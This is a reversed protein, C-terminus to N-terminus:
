IPRTKFIVAQLEFLQVFYQQKFFNEPSNSSEDVLLKNNEKMKKCLLRLFGDNSLM